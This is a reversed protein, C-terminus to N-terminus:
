KVLDKNKGSVAIVAINYFYVSWSVIGAMKFGDEFLFPSWNFIPFVDLTVSLGFFFFALVLLIYDTALIVSYFTIIWAIVISAYGIFVVKEPIGLFPFVVEHLLFIDDLCLLITLLGSVFLYKKHDPNKKTKSGIRASFMCLTATAVWLFIGIQSFFGTYIPVNAIAVIDRTLNGIPIGKWKELLLVLGVLFLTTVLIMLIKWRNSQLQSTIKM